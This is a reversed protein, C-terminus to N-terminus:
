GLLLVLGGVTFAIMAVLMPFQSRLALQPPFLQVARDHAVLVALAHGLAIATTQAWAIAGPSIVSYDVARSATGFLNWGLGIPDSVLRLLNQGEFLLFSFYHAVTYAVVIPVLSPGFLIGLRAESRGTIRSMFAIAVRYLTMVVGIAFILGGTNVLTLEWGSRHAAIEFWWATRSIGDFTTAGLVVLLLRVASPRMDMRALGGGPYGVHLMGRRDSRFLGLHGIASFLVALGDARRIWRGGFRWGLVMLGLTYVLVYAGVARPSSGQHFALELWIISLISLTAFADASSEQPATAIRSPLYRDYLSALSAFPNFAAWLNGVLASAVTVGVWVVLFLAFPALNLDADPNGVLGAVLTLGLMGTGITRTFPLTLHAAKGLWSPLSISPAGLHPESWFRGVIGFSMLVVAAAVWAFQWVPIALDIRGGLGHALVGIGVMQSTTLPWNPSQITDPAQTGARDPPRHSAM